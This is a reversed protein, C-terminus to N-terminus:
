LYLQGAVANVLVDVRGIVVLHGCHECGVLGVVRMEHLTFYGDRRGRRAQAAASPVTCPLVCPCCLGRSVGTDKGGEWFVLDLPRKEQPHLADQGLPVRTQGASAVLHTGAALVVEM